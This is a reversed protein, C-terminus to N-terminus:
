INRKFVVSCGDNRSITEGSDAELPTSMCRHNSIKLDTAPDCCEVRWDCHTCLNPYFGSSDTFESKLVAHFGVPAENPNLNNNVNM